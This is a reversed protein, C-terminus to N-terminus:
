SLLAITPPLCDTSWLTQQCSQKFKDARESCGSPNFLNIAHYTKIYKRTDLQDSVQRLPRFGSSTHTHDFGHLPSHTTKDYNARLQFTRAHSTRDIQNWFSRGRTKVAMMDNSCLTHRHQPLHILIVLSSSPGSPLQAPNTIHM